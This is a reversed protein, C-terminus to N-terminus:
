LMISEQTSALCGGHFLSRHLTCLKGQLGESDIAMYPGLLGDGSSDGAQFDAEHALGAAVRIRLAGFVSGSYSSSHQWM